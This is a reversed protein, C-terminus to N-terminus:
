REVAHAFLEGEGELAALREEPTLALMADILRDDHDDHAVLDVRLDFGAARALRELTGFTPDQRAGEIRAIESQAKGARAALERQSIGARARVERLIAWASVGVIIAYVEDHSAL